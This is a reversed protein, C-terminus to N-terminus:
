TAAVRLAEELDLRGELLARGVIVGELGPGLDSLSRIDEVSSVGGAAIVPLSTKELVSGLAGLDIGGLSGSRSVDTHVFRGAGAPELWAITEAVNWGGEGHGRPRIVDGDCELGVAMHRGFTGLLRGVTSRDALAASGLVVRSAGAGLLTEVEERSVVGGSAEVELDLDALDALMHLNTVEGTLALDLDVFHLWTAGAGAFASAAELPDGGFAGVGVVKGLELRALRGGSVDIAPIVQM